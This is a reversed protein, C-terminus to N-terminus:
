AADGGPQVQDGLLQGEREERAQSIADTAEGIELRSGDNRDAFRELVAPNWSRHAEQQLLSLLFGQLSQGQARAREALANRVGEPVDRIQLAVM